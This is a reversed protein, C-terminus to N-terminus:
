VGVPHTVLDFMKIYHLKSNLYCIPIDNFKSNGTSKIKLSMVLKNSQQHIIIIDVIITVGFVWIQPYKAM